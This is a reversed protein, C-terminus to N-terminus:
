GVRQLVFRVIFQALAVVILGIVAFLITNKASTINGPDGSSTIYKIGGIMLMIVAVIGIVISLIELATEIIKKVSNEATNDCGAGTDPSLAKCAENASGSDILAARAPPAYALLSPAVLLALLSTLSLLKKIKIRM